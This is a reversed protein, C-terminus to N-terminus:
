VGRRGANLRPDTSSPAASSCSPARVLNRRVFQEVSEEYEPASPRIGLAGLGARIKGAISLLDFVPLDQAFSWTLLHHTAPLPVPLRVPLGAPVPRLKGEWWVFRPATPDGFVLEDKLGADM